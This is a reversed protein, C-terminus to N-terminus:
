KFLFYSLITTLHLDATLLFVDFTNLFYIVIKIYINLKNSCEIFEDNEINM